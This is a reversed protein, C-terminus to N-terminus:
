VEELNGKIRCSRPFIDEVHSIGEQVLVLPWGPKQALTDGFM